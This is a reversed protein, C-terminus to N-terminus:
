LISGWPCHGPTMGLLQLDSYRHAKSDWLMPPNAFGIERCRPCAVYGYEQGRPSDKFDRGRGGDIYFQICCEPIRSRRGQRRTHWVADVQSMDCWVLPRTRGRVVRRMPPM